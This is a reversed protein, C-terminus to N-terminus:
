NIMPLNTIHKTTDTLNIFDRYPLDFGEFDEGELRQSTNM